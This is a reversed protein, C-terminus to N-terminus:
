GSLASETFTAMRKEALKYMAKEFSAIEPETYGYQALAALDIWWPLIITQGRAELDARKEKPVDPAPLVTAKGEKVQQQFHAVQATEVQHGRLDKERLADVREQAWGLCDIIHPPKAAPSPSAQQQKLWTERRWPLSKLWHCGPCIFTAKLFVKTHTVDDFRWQEDLTNTKCKKPCLPCETWNPNQKKVRERFKKWQGETM